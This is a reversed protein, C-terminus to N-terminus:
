SNGLLTLLIWFFIKLFWWSVWLLFAVWIALLTLFGFWPLYLAYLALAAVAILALGGPLHATRNESALEMQGAIRRLRVATAISWAGLAIALTGLAIFPVPNFAAPADLVREPAVSALANGSGTPWANLFGLWVDDPNEAAIDSSMDTVIFVASEHQAAVAALAVAAVFFVLAAVWM